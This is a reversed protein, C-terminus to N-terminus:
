PDTEPPPGQEKRSDLLRLALALNRRADADGPKLRLVTRFELVAAELRGAQALLAGLNNHGAPDEPALAVARRRATIAGELDGERALLGSLNVLAKMQRPDRRLAEEYAARAADADGRGEEAMGLNNWAKLYDPHVALAERFRRVAEDFRGARSHALGLNYLAKPHVPPASLASEWLTVSDRWVRARAQAGLLCAALALCTLGAALRRASAIGRAAVAEALVGLGWVAMLYLGLFPLYAYRDAMAQEGVQVFGIVPVMACLYWLWGVTLWRQRRWRWVAASIVLLLLLAGFVQWSALAEGGPMSPHPYHVSLGVPWLAKGLYRAHAVLANTLREDLPMLAARRTQAALTLGVAGAALLLGPLAALLIRPRLAARQLRELPWYELLLWLLPLTVLMQKATLGLALLMLALVYDLRRGRRAWRLYAFSALLALLQSLVDKRETIWAVSEVHLPHLAFFGAVAASRWTAGTLARLLLFLGVANLAHLLLNTLHFGRASDAGHLSADAMLSLWTLPHWNQATRTTFAWRLGEVTLGRKVMPNETIYEPDDFNVFDFGLTQGYVAATALVLLVAILLTRNM